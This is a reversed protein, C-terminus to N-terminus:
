LALVASGMLHYEVALNEQRFRSDPQAELM